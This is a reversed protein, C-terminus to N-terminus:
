LSNIPLSQVWKYFLSAPEHSDIPVKQSTYGSGKKLVAIPPFLVGTNMVSLISYKGIKTFCTKAAYSNTQRQRGKGM